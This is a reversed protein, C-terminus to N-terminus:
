GEIFRYKAVADKTKICVALDITGGNLLIMAIRDLRPWRLPVISCCGRDVRMAGVFPILPSVIIDWHTAVIQQHLRFSPHLLITSGLRASADTRGAEIHVVDALDEVDTSEHCASLTEDICSREIMAAIDREVTRILRPDKLDRQLVDHIQMPGITIIKSPKSQVMGDIDM